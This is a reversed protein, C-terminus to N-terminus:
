SHIKIEKDGGGPHTYYLGTILVRDVFVQPGETIKYTIDIKNPNDAQPQTTYEFKVKPFGLNYYGDLIVSQDTIVTSDSYPQGESASILGRIQGEPLAENGEIVLKGVITQKGENINLTGRLHGEKGYNDQVEPTVKVQLFGNA